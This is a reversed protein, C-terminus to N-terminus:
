SRVVTVGEPLKGVKVETGEVAFDIRHGGFHLGEVVVRRWLPTEVPAIMLRGLAADATLGLLSTVLSFASAASWSQPSCTGAYDAPPTGAEREDGRWLEPLRRLPVAMGAEMLARAVREAHEPFGAERLGAAALATDFPWVSGNHYSAPDYNIARTSLTRIGWGNFLEPSVLREAVHIAHDPPVIGAWLCHGPNSSIAEVQRKSGDLAQAVYKEGAMWFDRNFRRRLEEAREKLEPRKRAMGLLGRYLYAQVECLAVPRPPDTGDLHTLSDDSDKWGQNRARAGRYEIYGDEDMDGYKACWEIAAEANIWLEDLFTEDGTWDVTAALACLFLPTADITGFLHHPWLGRDVVEGTRVEHLIKGPQEESGPDNRRGQRAALYRLVGRAIEPNVPLMLISAILQDRGFPVGYWPLGSTPYLGSPYRDCLMRLDTLSRELLENVAPNDTKISVSEAVWRPYAGKTRVLGEDFESVGAGIAGPVVDVFITLEKRPGLRARRKFGAPRVIVLSSQGPWDRRTILLGDPTDVAPAAVPPPLERVNGRIALMAAFDAAIVLEVEEEVAGPGPNAIQIRERMGGDMYRTRTVHLDGATLEFVACGDEIQVGIPRPEAGGILLRFESLIRTDAFWVGDGLRETARMSGDPASVAFFRDHKVIVRETVRPSSLARHRHGAAGDANVRRRLCPAHRRRLQDM